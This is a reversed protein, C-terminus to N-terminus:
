RTHIKMIHKEPIIARIQTINKSKYYSYQYVQHCSTSHKIISTLESFLSTTLTCYLRINQNKLNMKRFNIIYNKESINSAQPMIIKM